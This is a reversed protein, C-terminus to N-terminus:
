RNVGVHYKGSGVPKGTDPHSPIVSVFYQGAELGKAFLEIKVSVNKGPELTIAKGYGEALEDGKPNTLVVLPVFVPSPTAAANTFVADVVIKEADNSVRTNGAALRGHEAALAMVRLTRKSGDYGTRAMLGDPMLRGSKVMQANAANFAAFQARTKALTAPDNLPEILMGDALAYLKDQGLYVTGSVFDSLETKTQKMPFAHLNRFAPETDLGTGLWAVDAPTQMQHSSSLFALLSPAIDFHSSIAKFSQPAKLKPSYVILPVHYREIRTDMPLEPLRHDGTIIFITNEYGPLKSMGDFFERLVEDTYLISAYIDRQATYPTRRDPAIGLKDLHKDVMARYKDMGIWQYPTHMSNTQIIAMSPQKLGQRLKGLTFDLLERDAFGWENSRKYQPGFDADKFLLDVGESTLYRGQQDFELNSGKFFANTYGAEKLASTLSVHRPYPKLENFSTRGYPVSAFISGLVGFTRGQTAVFNEWYLSRAALEDLFPTFSGLRAQPGSFNRGLGEIVLFVFNPKASFSNFQAGLTDPTQEPRLLPHSLDKGAYADAKAPDVKPAPLSRRVIYRATDDLFFAMKSVTLTSATGGKEGSGTPAKLLALCAVCLAMALMAFKPDFAPWAVDKIRLGLGIWMVALGALLGALLQAKLLPQGAVTTRIEALSYAYLDAGLPVGATFYYTVLATHAVLVLTWFIGVRITQRRRDDTMLLPLSLLFLIPAYRILALLDNGFSPPFEGAGTGSQALAMKLESIRMCIAAFLLAPLCEMFAVLADLLRRRLEASVM